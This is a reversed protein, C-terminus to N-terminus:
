KKLEKLRSELRAIEYKKSLSEMRSKIQEKRVVVENLVDDMLTVKEAVLVFKIIKLDAKNADYFEVNNRIHSKLHHYENWAKGKKSFGGKYSSMNGGRSFLGTSIQKIKWGEMQM